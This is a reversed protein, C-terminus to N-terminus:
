RRRRGAAVGALALLAAAGPTPVVPLHAADFWGQSTWSWDSSNQGLFGDAGYNTQLGTVPHWWIGFAPGIELGTWPTNGPYQPAYSQIISSDLVLDITRGGNADTVTVIANLRKSPDTAHTSAIKSPAQVGSANSGDVHSNDGNIGNYAYATVKPAAINSLDVYLLALEGSHGKPNDGPSVALWYGNTVANSFTAKFAFRNIAPVYDARASQFVGGNDNLGAGGNVARSWIWSVDASAAGAAVAVFSAATLFNKM